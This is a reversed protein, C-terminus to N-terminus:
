LKRAITVGDRVSLQVVEVRPDAVVTDNFAAIGRDDESRPDLVRGSWLTNDAVFLGGQRLRPLLAAYYAPYRAKDADVFALDFPEDGLTAITALADGLRIEIKAGHPTRDFFSRAIATAAPDIDCTVVRGDDPLAEAMCLASWGTFTGIEVVRRAGLTACLLKLLAGEVVGVQMQPATTQEQTVRRLEEFLPPRPTTHAEAYEALREDVLPVM